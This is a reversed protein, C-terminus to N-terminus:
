RVGKVKRLADLMWGLGHWALWRALRDKGSADSMAYWHIGRTMETRRLRGNVDIPSFVEPPLVALKEDAVQKLNENIALMMETEPDYGQRDYLDLMRAAVPSGKELAIGGGPNLWTGGGVKWESAVWERDVLDDIPAVLEVDLDFYVGGFERLAWMRAWDSVAAWKGAASAARVFASGDAPLAALSWERIEWEPAFRRWSALCKEALKTKPGKAWFCHIIRPVM